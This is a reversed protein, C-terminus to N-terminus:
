AFEDRRADRNVPFNVPFIPALITWGQSLGANSCAFRMMVTSKAKETVPFESLTM